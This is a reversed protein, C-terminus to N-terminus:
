KKSATSKTAIQAVVDKDMQDMIAARKTSGMNDLIQAVLELDGTMESLAEAAKAPQMKSFTEAQNKVAQSYQYKKVVKEYIEEANDPMIQEYFKKYEETDPAKDNFVVETDFEKVRKAFASQAAEFKKLRANEKKLQEIEETNASDSSSTSALKAELERIKANADALNDYYESEAEKEAPEPLIKNIVPVDKLVPYLVGSGFGGVDLKILVGFIALWIIVIVLVIIATVAKSGSGEDADATVEASEEKETEKSAM